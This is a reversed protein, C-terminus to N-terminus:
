DEKFFKSIIDEVGLPNVSDMNPMIISKSMTEVISTLGAIQQKISDLPDPGAPAPDPAPAAASATEPVAAPDAAPSPSTNAAPAPDAAPAPAPNSAATPKNMQRIEDATFGASILKLVDETNM